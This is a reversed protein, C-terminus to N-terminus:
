QLDLERVLYEKNIWFSQRTMMEGNPLEDCDTLKGKTFGNYLRYASQSTHPRVHIIQSQSSSLLNNKIGKSTIEFTVGNIVTQKVQEWEKRVITDIDSYSMNWFKVGKLYYCDGKKYFFVMLYKTETLLKYLDSDEFEQNIIEKFKFTPLPMHERVYGNEEVRITKIKINAKVFEKAQNGSIGM